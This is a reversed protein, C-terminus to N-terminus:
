CDCENDLLPYTSPHQRLLRLLDEDRLRRPTAQSDVEWLFGAHKVISIWHVNSQNMLAGYILPNSCFNSLDCELMPSLRLRWRPPVTDQLARALVSHSYWGAACAHDERSEDTEAIVKLCATLLDTELFQPGGVLNNLAHKGCQADTQREFYRSGWLTSIRPMNSRRTTVHSVHSSALLPSTDDIDSPCSGRLQAIPSWPISLDGHQIDVSFGSDFNSTLAMGGSDCISNFGLDCFSSPVEAVPTGTTSPAATATSRPVVHAASSTSAIKAIPSGLCSSSSCAMAPAVASVGTSPRLSAAELLGRDVVNLTRVSGEVSESRTSRQKDEYDLALVRVRQFNIARSLAVYLQLSTKCYPCLSM